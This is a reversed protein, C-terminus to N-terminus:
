LESVKPFGTLPDMTVAIQRAQNELIIQFPPADGDPSFLFGRAPSAAGPDEPLIQRVRVSAPFDFSRKEGNQTDTVSVMGAERDIELQFYRQRHVAQDRAFKMAAALKQASSRLELTRMGAGVSPFVLALLVSILAIVVLM